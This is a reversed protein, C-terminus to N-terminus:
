RQIKEIDIKGTDFPANETVQKELEVIFNTMLRKMPLFYEAPIKDPDTIGFPEILFGIVKDRPYEATPRGLEKQLKQIQTILSDIDQMQQSTLYEDHLQEQQYQAEIQNVAILDVGIAVLALMILGIIASVKFFKSNENDEKPTTHGLLRQIEIEVDELDDVDFHGGGLNGLLLLVEEESFSTKEGFYRVLLLSLKNKKNDSLYLDQDALWAETVGRCKDKSAELYDEVAKISKM